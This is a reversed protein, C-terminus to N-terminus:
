PAWLRDGEASFRSACSKASRPFLKGCGSHALKSGHLWHSMDFAPRAGAQTLALQECLAQM